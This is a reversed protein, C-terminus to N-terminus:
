RALLEDRWGAFRRRLALIDGAPLGYDAFELDTLRGVRKGCGLPEALEPFRSEWATRLVPPLWLYSWLRKLAAENLYTHLDAPRAAENLVARYLDIIRGPSDLDYQSNGSWSLYRPLRVVGSTPGTLLGLRDAVVYPKAYRRPGPTATM